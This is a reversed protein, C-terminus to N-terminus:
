ARGGGVVGQRARQEETPPPPDSTVEAWMVVGPGFIYRRPALIEIPHCRQITAVLDEWTAMRAIDLLGCDIHAGLQLHLRVQTGIMWRFIGSDTASESQGTPPTLGQRPYTM